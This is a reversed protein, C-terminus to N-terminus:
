LADKRVLAWLAKCINVVNVVLIIIFVDTSFICQVLCIVQEECVCLVCWHWTSFKHTQLWSRFSTASKLARVWEQVCGRVCVCDHACVCVHICVCVCVCARPCTHVSVCECVCLASLMCISWVCVCLCVPWYVSFQPFFVWYVGWECSAMGNEACTSSSQSLFSFSFLLAPCSWQWRWVSTVQM